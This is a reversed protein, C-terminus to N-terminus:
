GHCKQSMFIKLKKEYYYCDIGKTNGSSRKMRYQKSKSQQHLQRILRRNSRNKYIFTSYKVKNMRSTTQSQLGTTFVCYLPMDTFQGKYCSGDALVNAYQTAYKVSNLKDQKIKRIPLWGVLNCSCILSIGKINLTRRISTNTLNWGSAANNIYASFATSNLKNLPNNSLDLNNLYVLSGFSSSVSMIRNDALLLQEMVRLDVLWEGSICELRNWNLNLIKLSENLSKFLRAPLTSIKNKSLNVVIRMEIIMKQFTVSDVFRINQDSCDLFPINFTKWLTIWIKSRSTSSVRRTNGCKSITDM